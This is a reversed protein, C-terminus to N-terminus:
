APPRWDRTICRSSVWGIGNLSGMAKFVPSSGLGAWKTAGGTLKAKEETLYVRRHYRLTELVASSNQLNPHAEIKFTSNPDRNNLWHRLLKPSLVAGGAEVQAALRGYWRAVQASPFHALVDDAAVPTGRTSTKPSEAPSEEAVQPAPRNGLFLEDIAKVVRTSFGPMAEIAGRRLGQREAPTLQLVRHVIDADNFGNLFTAARGWNSKNKENEFNVDLYAARTLVAVQSRTGLRPNAVAELHISAVHGRSLKELKVEIDAQNFGNVLEAVTQWQEPNGHALASRVAEDYRQALGTIRKEDGEAQRSVRNPPLRADRAQVVHALEHALLQIGSESALDPQDPHLFVDRGVTFAKAHVSEALYRARSDRHIRVDDFREEFSREIRERV